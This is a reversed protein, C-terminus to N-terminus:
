LRRMLWGRRSAVVAGLMVAVGGLLFTSAQRIGAAPDGSQPLQAVTTANTSPKPDGLLYWGVTGAQETYIASVFKVNSYAPTAANGLGTMAAWLQGNEDISFQASSPSATSASWITSHLPITYSNQSSTKCAIKGHKEPKEMYGNSDYWINGDTDTACPVGNYLGVNTFKADDVTKLEQISTDYWYLTHSGDAATASIPILGAFMLAVTAM